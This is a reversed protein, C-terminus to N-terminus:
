GSFPLTLEVERDIAIAFGTSMICISSDFNELLSCRTERRLIVCSGRAKTPFFTTIAGAEGECEGLLSVYIHAILGIHCEYVICVFGEKPEANATETKTKKM